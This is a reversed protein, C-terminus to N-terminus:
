LRFYGGEAVLSSATIEFSYESKPAVAQGFNLAFSKPLNAPYLSDPPISEKM